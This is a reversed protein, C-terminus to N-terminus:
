NEYIVQDNEFCCSIVALFDSGAEAIFGPHLTIHHGAKFVVDQGNQVTVLGGALIFNTTQTLGPLNNTNLYTIQDQCCNGTCPCIDNNILDERITTLTLRMRDRQGETFLNMCQDKSYDMYNQFMDALDGIGDDCSDGGPFFCPASTTNPGKTTPTDNVFDDVNCDGDGWIHYLDLWHGVEHTATRGLNFRAVATGSTGFSRYDIVVGDTDPDGGPFQAYGLVNNKLRCVWINLYKNSDWYGYSKLKKNYKQFFKFIVSKYYKHTYLFQQILNYELKCDLGYKM